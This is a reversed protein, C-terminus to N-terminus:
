VFCVPIDELLMSPSAGDTDWALLLRVVALRGNAAAAILPTTDEHKGCLRGGAAWLLTTLEVNGCAAAVVLPSSVNDRADICLTRPDAGAALYRWAAPVDETQCADILGRTLAEADAGPPVQRPTRARM